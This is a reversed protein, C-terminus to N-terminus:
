KLCAAAVAHTGCAAATVWECCDVCRFEDDPVAALPHSSTRRAGLRSGGRSLDELEQSSHERPKQHNFERMTGDKQVTHQLTQKEAPKPRCVAIDGFGAWLVLPDVKILCRGNSYCLWVM